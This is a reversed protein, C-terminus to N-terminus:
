CVEKVDTYHKIEKRLDSNLVLVKNNLKDIFNNAIFKTARLHKIKKLKPKELKRLDGDALLVFNDNVVEVIIFFRGKDRGQTSLVIRGVNFPTDNM